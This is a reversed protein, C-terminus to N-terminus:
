RSGPLLTRLPPQARHTVAAHRPQNPLSSTLVPFNSFRQPQRASLALGARVDLYM